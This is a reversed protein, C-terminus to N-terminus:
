PGPEALESVAAATVERDLGGRGAAVELRLAPDAVLEAVSAM